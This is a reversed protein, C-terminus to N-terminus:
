SKCMIAVFPKSQFQRNKQKLDNKRSEVEVWSRTFVFCLTRCRILKVALPFSSIKDQDQNMERKFLDNEGKLHLTIM